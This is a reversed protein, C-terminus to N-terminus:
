TPSIILSMNDVVLTWGWQCTMEHQEKSVVGERNAKAKGSIYSGGGTARTTEWICVFMCVCVDMGRNHSFCVWFSPSMLGSWVKYIFLYIYIHIYIYIHQLHATAMHTAAMKNDPLVVIIGMNM